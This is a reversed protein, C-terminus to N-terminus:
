AAKVLKEELWTRVLKQSTTHKTKAVAVLKDMLKEDVAVFRKRKRIDVEFTAEPLAQWYDGMDHTDFFDVLQQTTRFRPLRKPKNEKM